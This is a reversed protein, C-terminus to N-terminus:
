INYMCLMYEIHGGIISQFVLTKGLKIEPYLNRKNSNFM